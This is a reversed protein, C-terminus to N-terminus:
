GGGVGEWCILWVLNLFLFFNRKEDYGGRAMKASGEVELLLLWSRGM